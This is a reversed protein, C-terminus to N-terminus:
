NISPSSMSNPCAERPSCLRAKGQFSLGEPWKVKSATDTDGGPVRLLRLMM